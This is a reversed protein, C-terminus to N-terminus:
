NRESPGHVTADPPRRRGTVSSRCDLQRSCGGCEVPWNTEIVDDCRRKRVLVNPVWQVRCRAVLGTNVNPLDRVLPTVLGVERFRALDVDSERRLRAASGADIELM